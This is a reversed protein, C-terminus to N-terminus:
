KCENYSIYYLYDGFNTFLKVFDFIVYGFLTSYNFFDIQLPISSSRSSKLGRLFTESSRLMLGDYITSPKKAIEMMKESKVTKSALNKIVIVPTIYGEYIVKL